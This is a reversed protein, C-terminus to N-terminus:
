SRFKWSRFVILYRGYSDTRLLYTLEPQASGSWVIEIFWIWPQWIKRPVVYWFPFLIDFHGCCLGFPRLIYSITTFYAKQGYFKGVDKM